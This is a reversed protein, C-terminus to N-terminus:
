KKGELKSNIIDWFPILEIIIKFFTSFSYYRNCLTVPATAQPKENFKKGARRHFLYEWRTPSEVPNRARPKRCNKAKRTM